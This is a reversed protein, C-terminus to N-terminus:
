RPTTTRGPRHAHQTCQRALALHQELDLGPMHLAHVLRQRQNTCRWSWDNTGAVWKKTMKVSGASSRPRAKPRCRTTWASSLWHARSVSALKLRLPEAGRAASAWAAGRAAPRQTQPWGMNTTHPAHGRQLGIDGALALGRAHATGVAEVGARWRV